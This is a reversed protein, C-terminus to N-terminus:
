VAGERELRAGAADCVESLEALARVVALAQAPTLEHWACGAYLGPAFTRALAGVALQHPYTMQGWADGIACLNAADTATLAASM